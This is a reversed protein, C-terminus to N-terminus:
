FFMKSLKSCRFLDNEVRVCLLYRYADFANSTHEKRTKIFILVHFDVIFDGYCLLGDAAMKIAPNVCFRVCNKSEQPASFFFLRWM